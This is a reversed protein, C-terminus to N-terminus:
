EIRNEYMRSLQDTKSGKGYRLLAGLLIVYLYLGRPIYSMIEM